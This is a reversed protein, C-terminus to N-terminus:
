QTQLVFLFLNFFFSCLTSPLGAFYFSLVTSLVVFECPSYLDGYLYCM